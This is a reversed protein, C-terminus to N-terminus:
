LRRHTFMGTALIIFSNLAYNVGSTAHKGIIKVSTVSIAVYNRGFLEIVNAVAFSLKLIQVLSICFDDGVLM